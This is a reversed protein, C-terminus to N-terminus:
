ATPVFIKQLDECNVLSDRLRNCKKALNVKEQGYFSYMSIIFFFNLSTNLFLFFDDMINCSLSAMVALMKADKRENM